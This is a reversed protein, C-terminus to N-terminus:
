ADIGPFFIIITYILDIYSCMQFITGTCLCSLDASIMLDTSLKSVHAYLLNLMGSDIIEVFYSLCEWWSMSLTVHTLPLTELHTEM